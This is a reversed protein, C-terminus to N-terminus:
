AERFIVQFYSCITLVHEDSVIRKELMRGEINSVLDERILLFAYCSYETALITNSELKPLDHISVTPMEGCKHAM